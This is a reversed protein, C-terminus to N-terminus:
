PMECVDAGGPLLQSALVESVQQLSSRLSSCPASMAPCFGCFGCAVGNVTLMVQWHQSGGAQADCPGPSRTRAPPVWRPALPHGLPALLREQPLLRQFAGRKSFASLQVLPTQAPHLPPLSTFHPFGLLNCLFYCFCCFALCIGCCVQHPILRQVYLLHAYSKIARLVHALVTLPTVNPKSESPQM